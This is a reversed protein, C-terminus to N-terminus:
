FWQGPEMLGLDLLQQSHWSFRLSNPWDFTKIDERSGPNRRLAKATRFSCVVATASHHWPCALTNYEAMNFHRDAGLELGPQARFLSARDIRRRDAPVHEEFRWRLGGFIDMQRDLDAGTADRRALAYYGAKDFHADATSVGDPAIIMDKSYLDVVCCMVSDRREQTVFSTLEHVSRHECFPYFLYEANYGYYIWQGPAAAIVANVIQELADDRTVDYDVRHVNERLEPLATEPACFLILQAFGAKEHHTITSALAADDEILILGIPGKSLTRRRDAILAPLDPYHM